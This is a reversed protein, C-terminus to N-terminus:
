ASEGAAAMAWALHARLQRAAPYRMDRPVGVRARVYDACGAVADGGASLRVDADGLLRAAVARLMEDVAQRLQEEQAPRANPDALPASVPPMGPSGAGRLAFPVLKERNAVLREAAQLMAEEDGPDNFPEIVRLAEEAIPPLPLQWGQADAAAASGGGGGDEDGSLGFINFISRPTASPRGIGGDIASLMPRAADSLAADNFAPEGCQPPLDKIHSYYDGQTALYSDRQELAHFWADVNPYAGGRLVFAKWYALSACMRELFPVFALDVISLRDGLFFPGGSAGLADEVRALTDEFERKNAMGAGDGPRLWWTFWASFLQRELRLLSEAKSRLADDANIESLQMYGPSAHEPGDFVAELTMMIRQSDTVVEGDLKMAPLLGRPNIELFSRPKSGYCNMPVKEVRFPIRKEELMMWTKQCYPCWAATDRYLTVRVDEERKGFLRIRADTHPGLDGAEAAAREAPYDRGRAALQQELSEWSPVSTAMTARPTLRLSFAARAAAAILLPRLM